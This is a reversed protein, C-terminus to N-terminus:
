DATRGIEWSDNFAKMEFMRRVIDALIDDQLNRFIKELAEPVERLMEESFM